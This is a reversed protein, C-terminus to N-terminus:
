VYLCVFVPLLCVQVRVCVCVSESLCSCVSLCAFLANLSVCERMYVLFRYFFPLFRYFYKRKDGQSPLVLFLTLGLVLFGLGVSYTHVTSLRDGFGLPGLVPSECNFLPFLLFTHKSVWFLFGTYSPQPPTPKVKLCRCLVPLLGLGLFFYM